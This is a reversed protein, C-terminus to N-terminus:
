GVMASREGLSDDADARPASPLRNVECLRDLSAHYRKGVSWLTDDPAPYCLLM